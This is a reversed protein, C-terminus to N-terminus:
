GHKAIELAYDFALLWSEFRGGTRLEDWSAVDGNLHLGAVGHSDSILDAVALLGEVLKKRKYEEIAIVASEIDGTNQGGRANELNNQLEQLEKFLGDAM